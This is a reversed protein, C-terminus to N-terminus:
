GLAFLIAHGNAGRSYPTVFDFPQWTRALIAHRPRVWISFYDARAPHSCLVAVLAGSWGLVLPAFNDAATQERPSM